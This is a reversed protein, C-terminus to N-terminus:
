FSKKRSGRRKRQLAYKNQMLRLEENKRSRRLADERWKPKRMYEEFNWVLLTEGLYRFSPDRFLGKRITLSRKRAAERNIWYTGETIRQNRHGPCKYNTCCNICANMTCNKKAKDNGCKSCTFATKKRLNKIEGSIQSADDSSSEM